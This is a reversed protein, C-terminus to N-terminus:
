GFIDPSCWWNFTRREWAACCFRRMARRTKWPVQPPRQCCKPGCERRERGTWRGSGPDAEDRVYYNPPETQTERRTLLRNGTDDLIAVVTEYANADTQFIREAAGTELNFRDLLAQLNSGSGSALVGVRLPESM